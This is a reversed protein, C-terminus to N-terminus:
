LPIEDTDRSIPEMVKTNREVALVTTRQETGDRSCAVVPLVQRRDPLEMRIYFTGDDQLKVPEGGLTVNAAPDTAGYVIMQADVEFPFERNGHGGIGSGLRVFAPANMPRKIKDEFIQQLENNGNSHDYGGSMAYYREYDATIDAWNDDIAGNGPTPTTVLNSKAILHFKREETLYGLAVRYSKPPDLVDIYWNKVGGHVHIERVINEISNTNGDGAIELVRLVPKASHWCDSLAARARAVTAKTIEWYAQLSAAM